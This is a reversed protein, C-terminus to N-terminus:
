TIKNENIGKKNITNTKIVIKETEKTLDKKM